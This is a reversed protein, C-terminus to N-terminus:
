RVEPSRLAAARLDQALRLAVLALALVPDLVELSVAPHEPRTKPILGRDRPPHGRREGRRAARPAARVRDRPHGGRGAALAASPPARRRPRLLAARRRPRPVPHHQARWPERLHGWRAEPVDRLRAPFGGRDRRLDPDAWGRTSATRGAAARHARGAARRDARGRRRHPRAGTRVGAAPAD